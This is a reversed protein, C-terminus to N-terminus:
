ETDNKRGFKEPKDKKNKDLSWCKDDPAPHWKDCHACAKDRKQIGKYPSGGKKDKKFKKKPRSENEGAGGHNEKCKKEDRLAQDITYKVELKELYRYYEDLSLAYPDINATLM